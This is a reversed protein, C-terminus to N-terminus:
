SASSNSRGCQQRRLSQHLLELDPREPLDISLWQEPLAPQTHRFLGDTQYRPPQTHSPWLITRAEAQLVVPGESERRSNQVVLAKQNYQVRAEAGSPSWYRCEDIEFALDGRIGRNAAQRHQFQETTM